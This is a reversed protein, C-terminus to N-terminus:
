FSSVLPVIHFHHSGGLLFSLDAGALPSLWLRFRIVGLLNYNWTLFFGSLKAPRQSQIWVDRLFVFIPSMHLPTALVSYGAFFYIIGEKCGQMEVRCTM